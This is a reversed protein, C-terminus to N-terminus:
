VQIYVPRLFSEVVVQGTDPSLDGTPDHHKHPSLVLRLLHEGRPTVKGERSIEM